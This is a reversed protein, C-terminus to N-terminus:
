GGPQIYLIPTSFNSGMPRVNLNIEFIALKFLNEAFTCNLLKNHLAFNNRMILNM